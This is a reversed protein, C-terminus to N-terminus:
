RDTLQPPFADGSVLAYARYGWRALPHPEASDPMTGSPVDADSLVAESGADAVRFEGAKLELYDPEAVDFLAALARDVAAASDSGAVLETAHPRGTFACTADLVAAAPGLARAAAVVERPRSVPARVARALTVMAGALPTERGTRATPVALVASDALPEPVSVAVDHGDVTVSQRSRPAGDLDVFRAGCEDVVSEYGLYRATRRAGAHRTGSCAVALGTPDADSGITRALERVVAPDTVLGTSPHHPYHCDPLLTVREGDLRDLVPAVLDSLAAALRGDGTERVRVSM